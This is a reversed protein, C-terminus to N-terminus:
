ESIQKDILDCRHHPRSRLDMVIGDRIKAANDSKRGKHNVAIQESAHRPIVTARLQRHHCQRDARQGVNQQIIYEHIREVHPNSPCCERRRDPRDETVQNQEWM